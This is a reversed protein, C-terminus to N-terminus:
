RISELSEYLPREKSIARGLAEATTSIKMSQPKGESEKMEM